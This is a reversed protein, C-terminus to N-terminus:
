AVSRRAIDRQRQSQGAWIGHVGADDGVFAACEEFVLCGACIAQAPETPEGRAPFFVGVPHDACAADRQWAPRGLLVDLLTALDVETRHM